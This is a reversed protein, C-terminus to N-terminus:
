KGCDFNRVVLKLESPNDPNYCIKALEGVKFNKAYRSSFNEKGKFEKGNLHYSYTVAVSSAKTWVSSGDSERIYNPQVEIIFAETEAVMKSEKKNEILFSYVSVLTVLFIVALVCLMLKNDTKM